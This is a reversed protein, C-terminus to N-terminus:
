SYKMESIEKLAITAEKLQNVMFRLNQRQQRVQPDENLLDDLVEQDYIAAMLEKEMRQKVPNVISYMIAKPVQNLITRQVEDVYACVTTRITEIDSEEDDEGSKCARRLADVWVDFDDNSEAQMEFTARGHCIVKDPHRHSIIIYLEGMDAVVSDIMQQKKKPDLLDEESMSNLAVEPATRVVCGDLSVVGNPTVSEPDNFYFLTNSKLVFWRREFVAKKRNLLKSIKAGSRKKLFGELLTYSSGSVAMSKERLSALNIYSMECEVLKKVFIETTELFSTIM